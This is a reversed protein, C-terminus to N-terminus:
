WIMGPHPIRAKVQDDFVHRCHVFNVELAWCDSPRVVVWDGVNLDKGAFQADEGAKVILGAKSQFLDEDLNSKPLVIGGITKEPRRYTAILVQRPGIEYASLDGISAFIADRPDIDHKMAANPM